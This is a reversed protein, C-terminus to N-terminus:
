KKEEEPKAEEPKLEGPKEEEPKAEEKTEAEAQKAAEAEAEAAEEAVKLKEQTDHIKTFFKELKDKKEESTKTREEKIEESYKGRDIEEGLQSARKNEILVGLSACTGIVSKVAATLDKCLLSPFKTKAVSIIQEISANAIQIKGQEGSGKEIGLEKKILESVPPSFVKIDFEKTSADIDLEVPVKLGKFNQTSENVKKIVGGINIGIPGLKQSLVPGPQMEGGEVLLKIKM